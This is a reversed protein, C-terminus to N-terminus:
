VQMHVQLVFYYIVPLLNRDTLIYFYCADKVNINFFFFPMIYNKFLTYFFTIKKENKFQFFTMKGNRLPYCLFLTWM